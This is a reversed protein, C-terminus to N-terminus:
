LAPAKTTREEVGIKNAVLVKLSMAEWRARFLPEKEAFLQKEDESCSRMHQKLLQITQPHFVVDDRSLVVLSAFGDHDFASGIEEDTLPYKTVAYALTREKWGKSVRLQRVDDECLDERHIESEHELQVLLAELGHERYLIPYNASM